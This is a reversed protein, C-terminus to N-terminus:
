IGEKSANLCYCWNENTYHEEKIMIFPHALKEKFPEMDWSGQLHFSIVLQEQTSNIHLSLNQEIYPNLSSYVYSVTRELYEQIPGDLAIDVESDVNSQITVQYSPFRWKLTHLWEITKPLGLQNINFFIRCQEAVESVVEKANGVREMDLNIKILQLQNLFDHHAFRLVENVTLPKETM